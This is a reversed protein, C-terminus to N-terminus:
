HLRANIPGFLLTNRELIPNGRDQIVEFLRIAWPIRPLRLCPSLNGVGGPVVREGPRATDFARHSGCAGYIIAMIDVVVPRSGDGRHFREVNFPQFRRACPPVFNNSTFTPRTYPVVRSSKAPLHM